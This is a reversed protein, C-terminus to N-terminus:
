TLLHPRGLLVGSARGLAAGLVRLVGGGSLGCPPSLHHPGELPSSLLQPPSHFTHATPPSSPVYYRVAKRKRQVAM